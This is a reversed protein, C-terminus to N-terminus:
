GWMWQITIMSGIVIFYGNLPNSLEAASGHLTMGPVIKDPLLIKTRAKEAPFRRFLTVRRFALSAASMASTPVLM